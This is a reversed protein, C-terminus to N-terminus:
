PKIYVNLVLNFSIASSNKDPTISISSVQATRRNQELNQLFKIFATYSPKNNSDSDVTIPMVFVGNIGTVSQVQTIAPTKTKTTGSGTASGGKQGLTSSPFTISGLQVGSSSAIKVIERVTEAQDKDQPVIENAADKLDAYKQIAQKAQVLSTQLQQVVQSDLKADQLKTSQKVLMNNGVYVAGGVGLGLLVVIGIMLYFIRKPTM